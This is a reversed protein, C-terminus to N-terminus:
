EALSYVRASSSCSRTHTHTHMHHTNAQGQQLPTTRYEIHDGDGSQAFILREPIAFCSVSHGAVDVDQISVSTFAARRNRIRTVSTMHRRPMLDGRKLQIFSSFFRALVVPTNLPPATIDYNTTSHAAAYICLATRVDTWWSGLGLATEGGDRGPTISPLKFPSKTWRAIRTQYLPYRVHPQNSPTRLVCDQSRAQSCFRCRQTNSGAQGHQRNAVEFHKRQPAHAQSSAQCPPM